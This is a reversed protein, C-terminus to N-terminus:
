RGGGDPTASMAASVLRRRVMERHAAYLGSAVVIVTGLIAIADPVEAFVFYGIVMAFLVISYRFPGVASVETGRYATIIFWNGSAVLLGAIALKVLTAGSVPHWPEFPICVAGALMVAMTTGLTLVVTPTEVSVWRTSLERFAVMVACAVALTAYFDLGDLGPRIILIVGFFGFLVAAWRRWGVQERLLIASLATLVLPAVQLIATIAGLTVHALATVFLGTVIAELLCRLLAPRAILLRVKRWQGLALILVLVALSAFLGRIAMIQTPPLSASSLKVLTDNVVFCGMAAVMAAMGRRNAASQDHVPGNM